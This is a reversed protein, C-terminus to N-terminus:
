IVRERVRAPIRRTGEVPDVIRARLRHSHSRRRLARSKYAAYGVCRTIVVAHVGLPAAGPGSGIRSDSSSRLRRSCGPTCNTSSWSRWDSPFIIGTLNAFNSNWAISGRSTGRRSRELESERIPERVPLRRLRAAPTCATTIVSCDAVGGVFATPGYVIANVDGVLANNVGNFSYFPPNWRSNSLPNYLTGEYSMEFGGGFATKGNGWPDYAFGARPGFNKHNGAGLSDAVAFGGPGCVGALVNRALQTPTDCGPQGAPINASFIWDACYGNAPVTCGPGPQFTTVMGAKEKHRTFLDYRLGINVTLKRSVKWDDQIFAGIELNRWHRFNDALQAPQTSVFGPDVGAAMGYPADAAFYLQNFFYYSPRAINFESNEINRRFDAGVKISHKGKSFSMM